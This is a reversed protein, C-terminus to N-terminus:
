GTATRKLQHLLQYVQFETFTEANETRVTQKYSPEIYASDTSIMQYHQNMLEASLGEVTGINECGSRSGVKRVANWLDKCTARGGLHSLETSSKKSIAHGISLSLANANEMKGQRLLKNKLRLKAKIAPTIYDPDKETM